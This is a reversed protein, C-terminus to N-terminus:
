APHLLWDLASTLAVESFATAVVADFHGAGPLELWHVRDGAERAAHVYARVSDASVTDDLEGQIFVQPVGLPLLALPSAQAYRQPVERPHGGMLPVVAGHCTDPPGIRFTELDTIAALGLVGAV